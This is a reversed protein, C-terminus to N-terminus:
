GLVDNETSLVNRKTKISITPIPGLLFWLRLLGLKETGPNNFSSMGILFLIRAVWLLPHKLEKSRRQYPLTFLLGGQSGLLRPKAQSGTMRPGKQTSRPSESSTVISFATILDHM